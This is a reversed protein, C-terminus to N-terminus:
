KKNARNVAIEEPSPLNYANVSLDVNIGQTIETKTGRDKIQMTIDQVDLLRAAKDEGAIINGTKELYRLFTMIKDKTGSVNIKIPLTLYDVDKTSGAKGFNVTELVLSKDSGALENVKKELERVINTEEAKEPLISSIVKQDTAALISYEAKLLRYQDRKVGLEIEIDSTQEDADRIGARADMLKQYSPWIMFIVALTAILAAIGFRINAGQRLRTIYKTM